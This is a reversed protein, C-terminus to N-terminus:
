AWPREPLIRPTLPETTALLLRFPPTDPLRELPLRGLRVAAEAELSAGLCYVRPPYKVLLLLVVAEEALRVAVTPFVPPTRLRPLAVVPPTRLLLLVWRLVVVPVPVARVVTFRLPELVSGLRLETFLPVELDPETPVERVGERLEDPLTLRSAVPALRLLARVEVPLLPPTRAEPLLEEETRLWPVEERLVVPDTDLCVM